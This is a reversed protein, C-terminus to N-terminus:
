RTAARIYEFLEKSIKDMSFNEEIFVRNRVGITERDNPHDLVDQIKAIWDGTDGDKVLFGKNCMVEPIGGVDTAVVAKEM